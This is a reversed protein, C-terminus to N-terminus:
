SRDVSINGPGHAILYLMGGALGMNKLFMITNMHVEPGTMMWFNHFFLSTPIIFLFIATAALRTKWGFVIMLGGLFEIIITLVTLVEPLPLGKSAIAQATGAFGQIKGWGAWIFIAALLLRGLLTALANM